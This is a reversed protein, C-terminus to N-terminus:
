KSLNAWWCRWCLGHTKKRPGALNYCDPATCLFRRRFGFPRWSASKLVIRELQAFTM